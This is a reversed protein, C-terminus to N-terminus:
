LFFTGCVLVVTHLYEEAMNPKIIPTKLLLFDNLRGNFSKFEFLLNYFCKGKTVKSVLLLVKFTIKVKVNLLHLEPLASQASEHCQRGLM